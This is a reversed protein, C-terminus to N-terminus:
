FRRGYYRDLRNAWAMLACGGVMVALFVCLCLLAVSEPQMPGSMGAVLWWVEPVRAIALVEAASM